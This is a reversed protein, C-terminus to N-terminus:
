DDLSALARENVHLGPRGQFAAKGGCPRSRPRGASRRPSSAVGIWAPTVTTKAARFLPPSPVAAVVETWHMLGVGPFTQTALELSALLPVLSRERWEVDDRPVDSSGAVHGSM